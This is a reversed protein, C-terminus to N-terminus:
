REQWNSQQLSGQLKEHIEPDLPFHLDRNIELKVYVACNGYEETKDTGTKHIQVHSAKRGESESIWLNDIKWM